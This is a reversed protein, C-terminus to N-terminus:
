EFFQELTKSNINKEFKKQKINENHKKTSIFVRNVEDSYPLLMQKGDTPFTMTRYPLKLKDAKEYSDYIQATLNPYFYCSPHKNYSIITEEGWLGVVKLSERKKLSHGYIGEADNNDYLEIVENVKKNYNFWEGNKRYESLIRHIESEILFAQEPTKCRIVNILELKNPNGTQLSKLRDVVDNAKGIKIYKKEEELIFYVNSGNNNLHENM